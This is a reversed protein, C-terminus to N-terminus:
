ISNQSAEVPAILGGILLAKGGHPLYVKVNHVGETSGSRGRLWGNVGAGIM